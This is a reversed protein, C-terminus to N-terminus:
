KKGGDPTSEAMKQAAWAQMGQQWKSQDAARQAGKEGLATQINFQQTQMEMGPLMALASQRNQEDAIDYQMGRQAKEAALKQGGLLQNLQSQQALREASGSRLGGRTALQDQSGRLQNAAMQQMQDQRRAHQLDLQDGMLGRWASPGERLAQEQFAQYGAGQTPDLKYAGSMLGDDGLLSEFKPANKLRQELEIKTGVARQIDKFDSGIDLGASGLMPQLEEWGLGHQKGIQELYKQNKKIKSHRSEGM